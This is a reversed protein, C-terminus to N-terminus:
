PTNLGGVEFPVVHDVPRGIMGDGRSRSCSSGNSWHHMVNETGMAELVKVSGM